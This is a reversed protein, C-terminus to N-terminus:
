VFSGDAELRRVGSGPPALALVLMSELCIFVAVPCGRVTEAFRRGRPLARQGFSRASTVNVVEM